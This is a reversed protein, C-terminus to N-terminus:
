VAAVVVEQALPQFRHRVLVVHDHDIVVLVQRLPCLDDAWPRLRLAPLECYDVRGEVGRRQLTSELALLAAHPAVSARHVRLQHHQKKGIEKPDADARGIDSAVFALDVLGVPNM